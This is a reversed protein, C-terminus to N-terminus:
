DVFLEEASSIHLVRKSLKMLEASSSNKLQRVVSLPVKGFRDELQALLIKYQGKQLGKQLGEQEGMLKLKEAITMINKEAAPSTYQHVTALFAPINSVEAKDIMYELMGIIYKDTHPEDRLKILFPKLFSQLLELADRFAIHKMVMELMGCLQHTYITEDPMSHLDIRPYPGFLLSKGIEESPRFLDQLEMSYSYPKTGTYFVMPVVLPLYPDKKHQHQHQDIIRCLYKLLRFPM